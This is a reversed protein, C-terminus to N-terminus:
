SKTVSVLQLPANKTAWATPRLMIARLHAPRMMLIAETAPSRTSDCSETYQM